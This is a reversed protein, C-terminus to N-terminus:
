RIQEIDFFSDYNNGSLTLGVASYMKFRIKEGANLQVLTSVSRIPPSVKVLTVAINIYNEQAIKIENNSLDTKYISLGLDGVSIGSTKVQAHIRYIGDAKATFFGTSNDYEDKIDFEENNFILPVQTLLSISFGSTSFTGKVLSKDLNSLLQASGIKHVVGRGDLVMLSDRAAFDSGSEFDQIRMKGNVDLIVDPHPAITGVGIQAQLISSFLFLSLYLFRM